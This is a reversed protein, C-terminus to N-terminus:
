GADVRPRTLMQEADRFTWDLFVGLLQAGDPHPLQAIEARALDREKVAAWVLRRRIDMEDLIELVRRENAWPVGAGLLEALEAHAPHDVQALGFFMPLTRKGQRLDSLGVPFWAAELDDLIQLMTGIHRGCAAAASLAPEHDTNLRAGGWAAFSFACATKDEVLELYDQLSAPPATIDRDQGACAQVGIDLYRRLVDAVRHPEGVLRGLEAGAHLLGATGLNFARPLGISLHLARPNDQDACDDLVRVSFCILAWVTAFSVAADLEAGVGVATALPLVVQPDSPRPLWGALLERQAPWAELASAVARDRIDALAGALRDAIAPAPRSM